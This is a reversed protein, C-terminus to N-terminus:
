PRTTHTNTKKTNATPEGGERAPTPPENVVEPEPALEYACNLAGIIPECNRARTPNWASPSVSTMKRYAPTLTAATEGSRLFAGCSAASRNLTRPVCGAVLGSLLAPAPEPSM